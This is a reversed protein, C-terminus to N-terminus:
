LQWRGTNRNSLPPSGVSKLKARASPPGLFPRGTSHVSSASSMVRSPAARRQGKGADRSIQPLLEKYSSSQVEPKIVSLSM